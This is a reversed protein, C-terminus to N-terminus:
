DRGDGAQPRQAPPARGPLRAALRADDKRKLYPRISRADRHGSFRLLDLEGSLAQEAATSIAERRLDHYRFDALFSPLPKVGREDCEAVYSLMAWRKAQAFRAVVNEKTLAFVKGDAPQKSRRRLSELVELAASSLLLPRDHGNKTDRAIAVSGEIDAWQLRLLEGRRAGTELSLKYFPLLEPSRLRKIASLLHFEEGPLFRRHREAGQTRREEPPLELVPNPIEQSLKGKSWKLCASVTSLYKGISSPSLGGASLARMFVRVMSVSLSMVPQRALPYGQIKRIQYTESYANKKTPTVEALYDALLDGLTLGALKRAARGEERARLVKAKYPDLALDARVADRFSRAEEISDFSECIAHQAGSAHIKVQFATIRGDKAVRAFVSKDVRSGDRM